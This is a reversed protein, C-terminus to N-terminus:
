LLRNRLEELKKMIELPTRSVEQAVSKQQQPPLNQFQECLDGDIVSKCPTYYSRFTVHERGCLPPLASRMSMELHQLLDTEDKTLLPLFAGISGLVTSYVVAEAGGPTLTAKQLATLTEGVHFNSVYEFKPCETTLYPTDGRLRLTTYGGLGGADIEKVSDSVRAVVLSDFKDGGVVTHYDLVEGCTLWHPRSEESIVHLANESSRYKLVMFGERVDGAFIRDKVVRLWIVAEPIARFECKKLLRRRGLSYIRIKKGLSVILRGDWACLALPASEVPTSHILHLKYDSNYAFVKISAKPCNRPRLTMNYATGVVLCPSDFEWFRCAVSCFAAEDVDLSYKCITKSTLPHVVRVCSGWKGPGARFTGVQEEPIDAEAEGGEDTEKIEMDDSEDKAEDAETMDIRKLASAIEKRTAEDYVGHDAEVVALVAQNPPIPSEPPGLSAALMGDMAQSPPPLVCLKRPTYSLPITTQSFAGSIASCQFIRLDRGSVAVFGDPCQESSFSSVFELKGYHLPACQVRNQSSYHCLWPRTSLAIMATSAGSGSLKGLNVRHLQIPSPGLFRTRQDTLEGTVRDVTARLLVGTELGVYLYLQSVAVGSSDKTEFQWLCVSGAHADNPVGMLALQRLEAEPDLDFIRVTNDLGTIALFSARTRGTPTPQVSLATIEYDVTKRSMETLTHSEDIEFSVVEGGTMAICIQRANSTAAIIRRGQSTRWENVRKGTQLHRIGNEHVQIHSDDIMLAVQLSSVNQLFNTDSVEAVNEGISLILTTDPFTVIIFGDHLSENTEKLTWVALPTGPLENDALEEVSLGHQIVRLSSRPGRGCAAFIQPHGEGLADLIKMDTIPSLSNMQEVLTLNKLSRLKFAVTCDAGSPHNSTCLPDTPDGGIGTFQYLLHNGFEAAVFLYGSRLVCMANAVPISDLYRVVVEVVVRREGQEEHTLEIKYLDGYDTQILFFFFNRLKHMAFCSVVMKADQAMELRRPIACAVDPHDPRKYVVFNECCVLVGSPGPDQGSGGPVPILLHASDDCPLTCKKIVHNLGLDMEWFSVGKPPREFEGDTAKSPKDAAEYNQEISAFVPNEFGVDIGTIGFCIQHSKHAELPSSITLNSSADRNLVYVFKSREIAGIMVARGKPDAALYQGPVVRRVGSKGFTEQHVKDFCNKTSNFELVVIRGSDSGVVLYDKPSGTLRFTTISRIIGFVDSSWISRLKRDELRVLELVRGRALVVEHVRPGSFNGQIAHTAATPKQLTLSYLQMRIHNITSEDTSILFRLPTFQQHIESLPTFQQHLSYLPPRAIDSM